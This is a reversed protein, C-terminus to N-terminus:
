KAVEVGGLLVEMESGVDVAEVAAAGAGDGQGVRAAYPEAM